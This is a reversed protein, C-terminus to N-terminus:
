EENPQVTIKYPTGEDDYLVFITSRPIQPVLLAIFAADDGGLIVRGVSAGEMLARISRALSANFEIHLPADSHAQPEGPYGGHAPRQM